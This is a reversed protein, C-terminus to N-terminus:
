LSGALEDTFTIGSLGHELFVEVFKQNCFLDSADDLKSKFLMKKDIDSREKHAQRGCRGSHDGHVLMRETFQDGAHM